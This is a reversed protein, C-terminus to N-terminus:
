WGLRRKRDEVLSAFYADKEARTQRAAITRRERDEQRKRRRAEPTSTELFSLARELGDAEFNHIFQHIRWDDHFIERDIKIEDLLRHIGKELARNGPIALLLEVDVASTQFAKIRAPLNTSFGIKVHKGIRAFYVVARAVDAQTVRAPTRSM